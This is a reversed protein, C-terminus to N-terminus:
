APIFLTRRKQWRMMLSYHDKCVSPSVSRKPLTSTLRELLYDEEFPKPHKQDGSAAASARRGANPEQTKTSPAPLQREGSSGGWVRGIVKAFSQIIGNRM